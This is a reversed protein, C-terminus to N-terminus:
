ARRHQEAAAMRQHQHHEDHFARSALLPLGEGRRGRRLIEGAEFIWRRLDIQYAEVVSANALHRRAEVAQIRIIPPVRQDTRFSGEDVRLNHTTDHERTEVSMAPLLEGRARD